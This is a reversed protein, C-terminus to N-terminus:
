SDLDSESDSSDDESEQDPQTKPGVTGQVKRGGTLSRQNQM